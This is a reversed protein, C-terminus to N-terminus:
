EETIDKYRADLVAFVAAVQAQIAAGIQAQVACTNGHTAAHGTHGLRNEVDAGTLGAARAVIAGLAGALNAGAGAVPQVTTGAVYRGDLAAVFTALGGTWTADAVLAANLATTAPGIHPGYHAGIHGLDDELVQITRNLVGSGAAAMLANVFADTTLGAAHPEGVYYRADLAAIFAACDGALSTRWGDTPVSEVVLALADAHAQAHAHGLLQEEALCTFRAAERATVVLATVLGDETAM